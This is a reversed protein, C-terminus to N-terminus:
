HLFLKRFHTHDDRDQLNQLSRSLDPKCSLHKKIVQHHEDDTQMETDRDHKLMHTSCMAQQNNNTGHAEM